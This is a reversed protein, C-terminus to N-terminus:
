KNHCKCAPDHVVALTDRYSKYVTYSHGNYEVTSVSLSNKITRSSTTIQLKEPPPNDSPQKNYLFVGLTFLLLGVFCGFVLMSLDSKM